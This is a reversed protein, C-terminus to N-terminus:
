SPMSDCPSVEQLERSARAASSSRAASSLFTMATGTAGARGALVAAALQLRGHPSHDLGGGFGPDARYQEFLREPFAGTPSLGSMARALRWPVLPVKAEILRLSLLWENVISLAKMRLRPWSAQTLLEARTWNVGGPQTLFVRLFEGLGAGLWRSLAWEQGLYAHPVELAYEDARVTCLSGLRDIAAASALIYNSRIYCRFRRERLQFYHPLFDVTGAALPFSRALDLLDPTVGRLCDAKYFPLRDNLILWVDPGEGPAAALSERGQEYASFEAEQNSGRIVIFESHTRSLAREVLDNNTVVVMSCKVGTLSRVRQLVLDISAVTAAPDWAALVIGLRPVRRGSRGFSVRGLLEGVGVAKWEALDVLTSLTM